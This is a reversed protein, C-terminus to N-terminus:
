AVLAQDIGPPGVVRFRGGHQYKGRPLPTTAAPATPLNPMPIQVHIGTIKSILESIHQLMLRVREAVTVETTKFEEKIPNLAGPVQAGATQVATAMDAAHTAIATTQTAVVGEAEEWHRNHRQTSEGISTETDLATQKTKNFADAMGSYFAGVNRGGSEAFESTAGVVNKVAEATTDDVLGWGRAIENLALVDKTTLGDMALQETAIDLLIRKLREDYAAANEGLATNVGELETKVEGIRKSNDVYATTAGTNLDMKSKLEDNKGKLIAYDSVLKAANLPDTEKAMRERMDALKLDQYTLKATAAEMDEISM